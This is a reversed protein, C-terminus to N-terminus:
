FATRVAEEFGATKTKLPLHIATFRLHGRQLVAVIRGAPHILDPGRPPFRFTNMHELHPYREM